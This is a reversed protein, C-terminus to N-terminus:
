DRKGYVVTEINDLFIRSIEAARAVREHAGEADAVVREVPPITDLSTDRIPTAM